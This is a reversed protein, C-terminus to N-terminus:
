RRSASASARRRCRCPSRAPRAPSAPSRARRDVDAALRAPRADDLFRDVLPLASHGSRLRIGVVQLVVALVVPRADVAVLRHEPDGPERLVREALEDVELRRRLARVHRLVRRVALDLRHLRDGVHDRREGALHELHVLRRDVRGLRDVLIRVAVAPEDADPEGVRRSTSESSSTAAYLCTRASCHRMRKEREGVGVPLLHELRDADGRDVLEEAVDRRAHAEVAREVELRREGLLLQDRVEGLERRPVDVRRLLEREEAGADVVVVHGRDDVGHELAALEEGRVRRVLRLHALADQLRDELVLGRDALEGAHVDRVRRAVVARGHGRVGAVDRLVRGAARLDDDGLRRVRLHALDHLRVRGAEAELDDLHRVVAPRGIRVLERAAASPAAATMKWCGFM